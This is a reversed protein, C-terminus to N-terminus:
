ASRRVPSMKAVSVVTSTAPPTAAPNTILLRGTGGPRRRRGDRAGRHGEEARGPHRHRQSHEDVPVAPTNIASGSFMYRNGAQTNLIGVMSSLEAAANEQAITQGSSDLTQPTSAAASQM